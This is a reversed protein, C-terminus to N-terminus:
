QPQKTFLGFRAVVLQGLGTEIISTNMPQLLDGGGYWVNSSRKAGANAPPSDIERFGREFRLNSLSPLNGVVVFPLNSYEKEMAAISRVCASLDEPSTKEPLLTSVVAIDKVGADVVALLASEFGASKLGSYPTNNQSRIPYMSFIGNGNQRGSVNITEGFASRMEALRSLENVLDIRTAIGPYRTIGQIALIEVQERALVRTFKEIDTKEIRKSLHSLNIGAINLISLPKRPSIAPAPSESTAAKPPPACSLASLLVVLSLPFRSTRM